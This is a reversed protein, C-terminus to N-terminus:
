AADPMQSEIGSAVSARRITLQEIQIGVPSKKGDLDCGQTFCPSFDAHIFHGSAGGTLDPCLNEFQIECRRELCCARGTCSERSSYRSRSSRIEVLVSTDDDYPIDLLFHTGARRPATARTRQTTIDRWEREPTPRTPQAGPEDQSPTRPLLHDSMRPNSGTLTSAAPRYRLKRM